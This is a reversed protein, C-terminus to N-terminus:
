SGWNITKGKATQSFFINYINKHVHLTIEALSRIHLSRIRNINYLITTPFKACVFFFLLFFTRLFSSKIKVDIAILIRAVFKLKIYIKYKTQYNFKLWTVKITLKKHSYDIEQREHNISFLQKM